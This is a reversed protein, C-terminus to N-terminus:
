NHPIVPQLVIFNRDIFATIDAENSYDPPSDIARLDWVEDHIASEGPVITQLPGTSEMEVYDGNIFSEYSAGFDHYVGDSDHDHHCVFCQGKNIYCAWGEVNNIGIKFPNVIDSNHRLVIFRKGWHIRPDSMDSYDWLSIMRNPLVGKKVVQQPIIEWGGADLATVSWAAMLRSVSDVNKVSYALFARSSDEDLSVRVSLQVKNHIQPQCTFLAGNPVPEFDVPEHDPYFTDPMMEPSVWLRNGGYINWYAGPYFVEDFDGGQKINVRRENTFMMNPSDLLSYHIIRPGFDLTVYLEAVDNFIRVCDGFSRYTIKQITVSM